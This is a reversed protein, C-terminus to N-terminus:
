GFMKFGRRQLARITMTAAVGGVLVPIALVLKTTVEQMQLLFYGALVVSAVTSTWPFRKALMNLIFGVGFAAILFLLFVVVYVVM